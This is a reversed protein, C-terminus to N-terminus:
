FQRRREEEPTSFIKKWLEHLTDFDVSYSLGIGQTYGIGEGLFTIDNERNFVRGKLTNEDNLRIEVQVNGVIQSQNVGGVPVGVQGNVTIRDNIQSSVTLGVQSNTEVYPNKDAQVYNLGINLKSDEDAFVGNVLSSATELLNGYVASGANMTNTSVFAGTSLLSLAQNQRITMDSLKYELDSKVVSTVGPFNIQFDPEPNTLNGTLVIM